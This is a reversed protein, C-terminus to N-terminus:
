NNNVNITIVYHYIGNPFDETPAYRGGNNDVPVYPDNSYRAYIPAGNRHIGVMNGNNRWNVLYYPPTDFHLGGQDQYIRSGDVAMGYSNYSQYQSHGTPRHPPLRFQSNYNNDMMHYCDNGEEMQYGGFRNEMGYAYDQDYGGPGQGGYGGPGQEDFQQEQNANQIAEEISETCSIFGTSLCMIMLTNTLKKNKM